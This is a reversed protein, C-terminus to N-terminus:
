CSILSFTLFHWQARDPASRPMKQSICFYGVWLQRFPLKDRKFASQESIIFAAQTVACHTCNHNPYSWNIPKRSTHRIVGHLGCPKKLSIMVSWYSRAKDWVYQVTNGQAKELCIVGSNHQKSYKEHSQGTEKLVYPGSLDQKVQM